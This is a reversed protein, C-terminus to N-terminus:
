WSEACPTKQDWPSSFRTCSSNSNDSHDESPPYAHTPFMKNNSKAKLHAKSKMWKCNSKWCWTFLDSYNHGLLFLMLRVASADSTEWLVPGRMLKLVHSYCVRGSDITKKIHATDVRFTAGVWGSSLTPTSHIFTKQSTFDRLTFSIVPICVSNKKSGKLLLLLVYLSVLESIGTGLEM